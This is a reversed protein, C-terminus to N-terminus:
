AEAEPQLEWDRCAEPLEAAEPEPLREPVAEM